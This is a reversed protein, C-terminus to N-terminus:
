SLITGLFWFFALAGLTWSLCGGSCGSNGSTTGNGSHDDGCTSTYAHYEDMGKWFDDSM